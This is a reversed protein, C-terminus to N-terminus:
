SKNWWWVIGPKEHGKSLYSKFSNHSFYLLFHQYGANEGKRVTNEVKGFVSVMMKAISFKDDAFAKMETLALMKHKQSSNIFNECVGSTTQSTIPSCTFVLKTKSHHLLTKDCGVCYVHGQLLITM